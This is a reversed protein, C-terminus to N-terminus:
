AGDILEKLKAVGEAIGTLVMEGSNYRTNEGQIDCIAMKGLRPFLWVAWSRRVLHEPSTEVIEDFDTRLTAKVNVAWSANRTNGTHSIDPM